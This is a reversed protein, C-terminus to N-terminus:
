LQSKSINTRTKSLWKLELSLAVKRPSSSLMPNCDWCWKCSGKSTQISLPVTSIVKSMMKKGSTWLNLTFSLTQRRHRKGKFACWRKLLTESISPKKFKESNIRRLKLMIWCTKYWSAWSTPRHSRFKSAKMFIKWFEKASFTSRETKTLRRWLIM